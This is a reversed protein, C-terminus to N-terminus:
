PGVLFDKFDSIFMLKQDFSINLEFFSMVIGLSDCFVTIKIKQKNIFPGVSTRFCCRM